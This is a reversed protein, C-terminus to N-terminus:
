ETKEQLYKTILRFIEKVFRENLESLRQAELPKSSVTKVIYKKKIKAISKKNRNIVKATYTMQTNTNKILNFEGSQYNEICIHIEPVNEPNEMSRFFATKIDKNKIFNYLKMELDVKNKNLIDFYFKQQEESLYLDSIAKENDTQSKDSLKEAAEETKKENNSVEEENSLKEEINEKEETSTAPMEEVVNEKQGSDKKQSLLFKNNVKTNENFSVTFLVKEPFVINNKEVSCFILVPLFILLLQFVIKRLM